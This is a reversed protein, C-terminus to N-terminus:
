HKRISDTGNDEHREASSIDALAEQGTWLTPLAEEQKLALLFILCETSKVVTM